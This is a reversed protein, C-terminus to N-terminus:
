TQLYAGGPISDCMERLDHQLDPQIYWVQDTLTSQNGWGHDWDEYDDWHPLRLPDYKAGDQLLGEEEFFFTLM